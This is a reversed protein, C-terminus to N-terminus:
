TCDINLFINADIDLMSCILSIEKRNFLISGENLKKCKYYFSQKTIGIKNAIEINKMGKKKILEQIKM